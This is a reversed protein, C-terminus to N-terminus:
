FMAHQYMEPSAQNLYVHLESAASPTAHGHSTTTPLYACYGAM